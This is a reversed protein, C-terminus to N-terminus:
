FHSMTKFNTTFSKIPSKLYTLLESLGGREGNSLGDIEDLLIGIGGKNGNEMMQLIGGEKLLPLITKRFSAGSRTHSANFEITKLNSEKFIRHAITTKGIGPNGLLLVASYDRKKIWQKIYNNEFTHLENSNSVNVEEILIIEVNWNISNFYKNKKTDPHVKSDAKHRNFRVNLDTITSGIYYYKPEEISVIKYIKSNNYKNM